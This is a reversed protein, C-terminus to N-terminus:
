SWYVPNGTELSAAFIRRLPDLIYAFDDATRPRVEVHLYLPHEHRRRGEDDQMRGDPWPIAAGSVAANWVFRQDIDRNIYEVKQARPTDDLVRQEVRMARFREQPAPTGLYGAKAESAKAPATGSVAHAINQEFPGDSPPQPPRIYFGGADFGGVLGGAGGEWLFEGAYAAVYTHLVAGTETNVLVVDTGLAEQAFFELEPVALAVTAALVAGSNSEPLIEHLVPFHEWGVRALAEQFLRYGAWNAIREDAYLMGPHPCAHKKWQYFQDHLARNPQYPLDLDLRGDEVSILDLSIPPPTTRGEAYCNCPVYADLGM